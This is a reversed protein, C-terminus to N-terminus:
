APRPVVRLRRQRGRHRRVSQASRRPPSVDLWPGPPVGNDLADGLLRAMPYTPDAKLARDLAISAVAGDGNRWAAFALLTAPPAAMEPEVRRAIDTWLGVSGEIDRGIREWAYDRVRVSLLM